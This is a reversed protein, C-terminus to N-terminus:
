RRGELFDRQDKRVVEVHPSLWGFRELFWIVADLSKEVSAAVLDASEVAWTKGIDDESAICEGM